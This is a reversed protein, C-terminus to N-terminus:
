VVSKRDGAALLLDVLAETLVRPNTTHGSDPILLGRRYDLSLNPELQRLEGDDVVETVVGRAERLVQAFLEPAGPERTRSVLLQGKQHILRDRQAPELLGKWHEVADLTLQALAVSHREARDRRAAQLWQVLWPFAKPLYSWRVSLPGQPDLLWAPVQRLMGPMAMPVVSGNSISGANGSSTGSGPPDRDILRVQHGERQLQLACAAGVVGAGVVITEEPEAM